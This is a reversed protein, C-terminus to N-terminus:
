ALDRLLREAESRADADGSAAVEQLLSRATEVDGLDVYARALEIREQGAPAQNLPAVTAADSGAHWTPSGGTAM